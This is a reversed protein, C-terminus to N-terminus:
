VSNFVGNHFRIAINREVGMLDFGGRAVVPMKIWGVGVDVLRFAARHFRMDVRRIVDVAGMDSFFDVAFRHECPFQSPRAPM